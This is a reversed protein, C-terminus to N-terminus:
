VHLGRNGTEPLLGVKRGADIAAAIPGYVGWGRDTHEEESVAGLGDSEYGGDDGDWDTAKADEATDEDAFAALAAAATAVEAAEPENAPATHASASLTDETLADHM